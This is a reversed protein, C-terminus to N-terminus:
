ALSRSGTVGDTSRVRSIPAKRAKKASWGTRMSQDAISCVASSRSITESAMFQGKSAASFCIRSSAGEGMASLMAKNARWARYQKVGEVIAFIVLVLLILGIVGVVLLAVM